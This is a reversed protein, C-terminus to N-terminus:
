GSGLMGRVPVAMSFGGFWLKSEAHQGTRTAVLRVIGSIETIGAFRM